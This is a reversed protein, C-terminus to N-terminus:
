SSDKRGRAHRSPQGQWMVLAKTSVFRQPEPERHEVKHELGTSLDPGCLKVHCCLTVIRLDDLVPVLSM